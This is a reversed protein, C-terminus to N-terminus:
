SVLLLKVLTRGIRVTCLEFDGTGRRGVFLLIILCFSSFVVESFRCTGLTGVGFPFNFCSLMVSTKRKFFMWGEFEAPKM